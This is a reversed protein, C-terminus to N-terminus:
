VEKSEMEKKLRNFEAKTEELTGYQLCWFTNESGFKIEFEQEHKELYAENTKFIEIGLLELQIKVKDILKIEDESMDIVNTNKIYETLNYIMNDLEFDEMSIDDVDFSYPFLEFFEISLKILNYHEQTM